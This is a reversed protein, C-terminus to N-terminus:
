KQAANWLRLLALTGVGYYTYEVDPVEDGYCALFGGGAQATSRLFRAVAAVDIPQLGGLGWLTLCAPSPPFCTAAAPRPM